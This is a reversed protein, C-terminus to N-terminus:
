RLPGPVSGLRVRALLEVCKLKVRAEGPSNLGIGQDSASVLCLPPFLVCWWNKGRGEGIVVRVATYDGQPFVLDGYCKTPFAFTGMCVKVPYHYGNASVAAEAVRQVQPLCKRATRSAEDVDRADGLEQRLYNVVEDKVRMKLVQDAPSDSNAIVHLRIVKNHVDGAGDLYGCGTLVTLIIFGSVLKRLM